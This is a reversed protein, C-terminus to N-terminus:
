SRTQESQALTTLSKERRQMASFLSSKLLTLIMNKGSKQNANSIEGQGLSM